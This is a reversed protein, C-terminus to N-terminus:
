DAKCEAARGARASSALFPRPKDLVPMHMRLRVPTRWTEPVLLSLRRRDFAPGVSQDGEFASSFVVTPGAEGIPPRMAGGNVLLIPICGMVPMPKIHGAKEREAAESRRHKM